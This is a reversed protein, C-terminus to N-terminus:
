GVANARAALAPAFVVNLRPKEGATAFQKWNPEFGVGGHDRGEEEMLGIDELSVGSHELARDLLAHVSQAATIQTM